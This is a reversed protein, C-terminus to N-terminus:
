KKAIVAYDQSGYLMNSVRQIARNVEEINRIGDGQLLPLQEPRSCDTYVTQVDSFGVERLIYGLTLPHIPKSHTPDIYFSSTFISLSTPNPTEMVLYTGDALKQYALRCLHVLREFSLHEIIQGAFIGGFQQDTKELYDIGDGCRVDVGNLEGEVVYEPYLDVGFAQIRNDRMLQLFEGRGCGIDIIPQAQNEFYPIYMKQREAIMARTGRFANQFKFYDLEQYINEETQVTQNTEQAQVVEAADPYTKNRERLILRAMNSSLEDSQHDALDARQLLKQISEEAGDVRQNIESLPLDLTRISNQLNEIRETLNQDENSCSASLHEMEFGIQQLQQLSEQIKQEVQQISSENEQASVQLAKVEDRIEQCDECLKNLADQTIEDKASLRSIEDNLDHIASRNQEIEKTQRDNEHQLKRNEVRQEEVLERMANLCRVTHANFENQKALIPLLLFKLIKRIVRKVFTKVGRPGLEWYYPNDYSLNVVRLNEIFEDWKNQREQTPVGNNDGPVAIRSFAPVQERVGDRCIQARIEEVIKQVDVANAQEQAIQERIEEMIRETNVEM